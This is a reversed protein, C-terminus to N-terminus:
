AEIREVTAGLEALVDPLPDVGVGPGAPVQLSGDRLVFPSTVDRAVYRSSASLDPPLTFGPLSALALNAARGVGTELMGGVWAAVGSRVCLDHVRVGALYGGLRGPKVCVVSCAGLDIAQLAVRVSTISEDLCVPTHLVRALEVHGLLDDEPLPQEVFLLDYPDLRALHAADDVTYAGNADVQLGVDPGVAERVAAVVEIDRGPEIKLKIRRYGENVRAQAEAVTQDVTPQLGVAVGVQVESRTGGLRERLSVSDRRCEADLLAAELACKAMSWGRIGALRSAAEEATVEPSALLRPLLHHRLALHSAAVFESVYGPEAPAVDEGWGDVGDGVVHVLLVDRESELGYSTHFPAVLPVRVRVLEVAEVRV